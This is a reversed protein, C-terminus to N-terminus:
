YSESIIWNEICRTRSSFEVGIEFLRRNDTQCKRSYHKERIQKLAEEASHDYKLEVIYIFDETKIEIDIRGESTHSEAETNLGLLNVLIFFANHFNNENEIKLAYDISAFYAQLSKMAKEPKGLMFNVVMDNVITKPTGLKSNVYFPLLTKYLGAKVENNPIGLHYRKLKHSYSKITLYGTQFLLAIPSPNLLDLGKLDEPECYVDFFEELNANVRKLAEGIITPLGTDNWFYEIERKNLCNLLSWPNFIESGAKTFRYGDYSAKLQDCAENYGIEYKEALKRIGPQLKTFLEESTIGCIDAFDDDFTIDNLNN